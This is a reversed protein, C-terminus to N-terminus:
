IKEHNEGKYIQIIQEKAKGETRKLLKKACVPNRNKTPPIGIVAVSMKHGKPNGWTKGRPSTLNFDLEPM